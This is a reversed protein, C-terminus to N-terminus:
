LWPNKQKNKQQNQDCYVNTSVNYSVDLTLKLILEKFFRAVVKKLYIFTEGLGSTCLQLFGGIDVVYIITKNICIERDM